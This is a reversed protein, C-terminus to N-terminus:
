RPFGFFEPSDLSRDLIYLTDGEGRLRKPDPTGRHSGDPFEYVHARALEEGTQISEYSLMVSLSGITLDKPADSGPPGWSRRIVCVGVDAPFRLGANEFREQM